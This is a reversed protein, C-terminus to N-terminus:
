SIKSRNGFLDVHYKKFFKMSQVGPERDKVSRDHFRIKVTGVGRHTSVYYGEVIVGKKNELKVYDNKYLDFKHTYNEDVIPWDEEKQYAKIVRNPEIGAMVDKIYVPCLYFKGAKEYVKVYAMDGNSAIGERVPFGSRDNTILRVSRIVPGQGNKCPMHVPTVFAKDAKGDFEDLRDKLVNYLAANRGTAVGGVLKVDVLNELDKVKLSGVSVRKVAYSQGEEDHRLSKITDEHIAGTLKRNVQRTVFINDIMGLADDRFTDWPKPPYFNPQDPHNSRHRKSWNTMAQVHSQTAAAIIIADLGHHRDNEERDKLGLGWAHRLKSTLAGNRTKVFIKGEEHPNELYREMHEKLLRSIYRNDNLHRSKWEEQKDEDFNEMLLRKSKDPNRLRKAFDELGNMSRGKAAFYEVPTQNGKEQNEDAFCIVKNFWSNDYSRSYPLIHDVQTAISDSLELPDIYSGSYACYGNQEKWLKYKAFDEGSLSRGFIEEAHKKLEENNARNKQIEREKDKRDKFNKGLERSMEIHFFDPMGHKRILANIMKRTQSLARLVLPNRVDVGFEPLFPPLKQYAGERRESHDYGAMECAVSYVEGQELFPLINRIAKLSLGATGSLNLPMIAELQETTLPLDATLKFIEKRDDNFAMIEVLEDLIDARGMFTMLEQESMSKKLETKIKHYGELKILGVKEATKVIEAWSQDEGRIKRYSALNFTSNDNIELLDRAKKFTVQKQKHAAEILTRKEDLSLSRGKGGTVVSLSSLREWCVRLENSYTMKAARREDEEFECPGVLDHSSKLPRQTFAQELFEDCLDDTALANGLDKQHAFIIRVEEALLDRTVTHNYASPNNRRKDQISLYAGITEAKADKQAEQLAAADKLMVGAESGQVSDSKRTSKFGRRKNIHSLIQGLEHPILKRTLAEARLQWVDPATITGTKRGKKPLRLDDATFGHSLLLHRIRIKRRRKRDAMRRALRKVRRPMALSAGDKGNEAAEFIRVGADIIEEDSLDLVAWGVSAIGTDIGIIQVM